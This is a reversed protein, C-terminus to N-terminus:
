AASRMLPRFFEVTRCLGEEPTVLPEWGLEQQAKGADLDTYRVGGLKPPGHVESLPYDIMTKLHGFVQNVSVGAGWGLNYTGNEANELAMM